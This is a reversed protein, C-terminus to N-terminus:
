RSKGTNGIIFRKYVLEGKATLGTITVAYNTANDATYFHINAEGNADTVINGNWYITTRPDPNSSNKIDNNSYDPMEFKPSTHYTVPTFLRLNSKSYDPKDPGHKTNVSVVGSAGRVGYIAAEPGRLVEVFDITAPDLSNLFGLVNKTPVEYGDMIVLPPIVFGQLNFAPGFISIDSGSLSVGAVMLVANGIANLGGYRFKDSTVIQSISNLRKSVDYNPEEKKVTKVTIPTLWGKGQFTLATDIHLKQSLTLTNINNALFQQKLSLPTSFGPYHFREIKISDELRQVQHKDTVQLSLQLSDFEQPMSLHFIGNNDTTDADMFFDRTNRAIATVIRDGIGNGKKNIIKGTLSQLRKNDDFDQIERDYGTYSPQKSLTKRTALLLDINDASYNTHYRNLWSDLLFMGSPPLIGAETSDSFEQIWEDEVAVNLLSALPKGNPAAVKIHVNVNERTSYKQKDPTVELEVNEKPIYIKREDVVNKNGDFLLLRAIGGSFNDIPITIGYYGTGVAAYYLSDGQVAVITTRTDAPVADELTVFAKITKSTQSAVSLQISANNVPPLQYRIDHNDVHFIATYKEAPDDVFTLRALGFSNTKFSTIVSDKSNVLEGKVQLPNNYDSKIEIIGTSIVGPIATLREAFFHITPDSKNNNKLSGEFQKVYSDEDRLQKNIVYVPYLFVGTSDGELQTATYSRIWYIGTPLLEPLKFAGNTHLSTNDLVLQEIISDKENVLDAFLNKSTIDLRGNDANGVYARFWIEEGALYINRNTLLVVNKATSTQIFRTFLAGVSDTSQQHSQAM